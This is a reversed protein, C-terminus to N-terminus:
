FGLGRPSIALLATQYGCGRRGESCGCTARSRPSRRCARWSTPSRSRRATASRSRGTRTPAGSSAADLVSARCRACRASCRADTIGRGAIQERVMRRARRNWTDGGRRRKDLIAEFDPCRWGPLSGLLEHSTLDLDLPTVSVIGCRVATGDATPCTRPTSSPAASGSTRAGRLDTRIEVQDRYVRQGLRTWRYGQLKGHNPVNVNLLTKPPLGEALIAHALARAFRAARPTARAAGREM